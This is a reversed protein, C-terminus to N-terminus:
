DKEELKYNQSELFQVVKTLNGLRAEDLKFEKIGEEGFSKDVDYFKPDSSSQRFGFDSINVATGQSGAKLVSDVKAQEITIHYKRLIRPIQLYALMNLLYKDTLSAAAKLAESFNFQRLHNAVVMIQAM